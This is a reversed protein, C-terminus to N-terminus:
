MRVCAKIMGQWRESADLVRINTVFVSIEYPDRMRKKLKSLAWLVVFDDTDCIQSGGCRRLFNGRGGVMNSYARWGM